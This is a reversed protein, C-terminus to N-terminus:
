PQVELVTTGAENGEDDYFTIAGMYLYDADLGSTMVRVNNYRGDIARPSAVIRTEAGESDAVWVPMTFTTTDAGALSWGHVWVLYVDGAGINARPEPNVLIVDENSGGNTSTAVQACSWGTCRYVYLDLDSGPQAVLSDRLSFRAVKTGEPIHYFNTSLGAENFSFSQDPDQAVEGETGFPAVLGAYSLSTSGSYLMKVPFTARGRNLDLSLSEPVEIKVDPAPMVAIPSRVVTGDTGTLVVAGFVWENVVTEETKAFTVSFSATGNADVVLNASETEVGDADYTKTSATLGELGELAVTYDGGIGSVDTLTRYITEQETLKGIAISPYNLQSPDTSFGAGELDACTVGTSGEVFSDEGLGCM